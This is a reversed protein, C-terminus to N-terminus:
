STSTAFESILVTFAMYLKGPLRLMYVIAGQIKQKLLSIAYAM